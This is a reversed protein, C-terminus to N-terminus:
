LDSHVQFRARSLDLARIKESEISSTNNEDVGRPEIVGRPTIGINQLHNRSEQGGRLRM